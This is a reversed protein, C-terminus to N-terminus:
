KSPKEDKKPEEKKPEEIEEKHWVDWVAGMFEKGKILVNKLEDKTCREKWDEILRDHIFDVVKDTIKHGYKEAAKHLYYLIITASAATRTHPFTMLIAQLHNTFFVKMAYTIKRFIFRPSM